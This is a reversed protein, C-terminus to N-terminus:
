EKNLVYTFGKAVVLSLHYVKGLQNFDLKFGNSRIDNM